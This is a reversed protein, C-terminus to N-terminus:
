KSRFKKNANDRGPIQPTYVNLFLCDEAGDPPSPMGITGYKNPCHNGHQLADRVGSWSTKKKPAQFRLAGVPPEGYPVGKFSYYSVGLNDNTIIEGRLYGATTKVVVGDDQKYCM